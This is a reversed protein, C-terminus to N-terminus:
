RLLLLLAEWLFHHELQAKFIWFSKALHPPHSLPLLMLLFLISIRAVTLLQPSLVSCSARLYWTSSALLAM